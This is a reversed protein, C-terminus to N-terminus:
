VPYGNELKWILEARRMDDYNDKLGAYVCFPEVEYGCASQEAKYIAYHQELEKLEQFQELTINYKRVM